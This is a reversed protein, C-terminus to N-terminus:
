GSDASVAQLLGQRPQVPNQFCRTRFGLGDFLRLLDGHAFAGTGDHYELCIHCIRRFLERPARLLIDFEAGECDLKLFDCREIALWEFTDTLSLAPVATAAHPLRPDPPIISNREPTGAVAYLALAGSAAAVALPHTTVNAVGNLEANRRLLTYSEPTPEFAHVQTDKAQRAALVSFAGIHAGIDLVTWGARLTAGMRLYDRDLYVEKVIWADMPSRVWFGAGDGLRMLYPRTMPLGALDWALLPWNRVTRGLTCLSRLYYALARLQLRGEPM